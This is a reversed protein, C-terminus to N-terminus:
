FEWAKKPHVPGHRALREAEAESFIGAQVLSVGAPQARLLAEWEHQECVAKMVKPNGPIIMQYVVWSRQTTANM